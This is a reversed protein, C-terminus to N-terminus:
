SSSPPSAKRALCSQVFGRFLPHPSLFRSTLEPHFQVGVFWPHAPIEIIEVLANNPSTGTVRMGADELRDRYAPNFEYRHRHREVIREAGYCTHSISGPALIAPYNGLRMTGGKDTITQQEELLGIVPHPTDPEFETSNAGGLGLVNRAYEIVACHLGLCLGFFPMGHTRAYEVAEIKGEIGRDGFGGPVVLGDLDGLRLAPDVGVLSEAPIWEIDVAAGESAGVHLLAERISIYADQL